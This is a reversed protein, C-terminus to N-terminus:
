VIYPLICIEWNNDLRREKGWSYPLDENVSVFLRAEFNGGTSSLDVIVLFLDLFTLYGKWFRGNHGTLLLDLPDTQVVPSVPRLGENLKRVSWRLGGSTGCPSTTWSRSMKKYLWLLKQLESFILNGTGNRETGSGAARQETVNGNQDQFETVM